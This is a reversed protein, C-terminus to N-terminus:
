SQNGKPIVPQIEKRDLPSKLTKELPVENGWGEVGPEMWQTGVLRGQQPGLERPPGSCVNGNDGKVLAAKKPLGVM